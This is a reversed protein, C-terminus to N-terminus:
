NCCGFAGWGPTIVEELEELEEFDEIIEVSMKIEEKVKNIINFFIIDYNLPVLM